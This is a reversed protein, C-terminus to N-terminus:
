ARTKLCPYNVIGQIKYTMGSFSTGLIKGLLGLVFGIVTYCLVRGINYEFVAKKYKQSQSLNVGECMAICHVSTTLGLLLLMEYSMNSSATNGPVLLNQIGLVSVIVFIGIITGFLGINKKISTKENKSIGYGLLEVQKIIEDESVKKDDYECNLQGTQLNVEVNKIGTVKKLSKEIRRQCGVCTMGTIYYTEKM